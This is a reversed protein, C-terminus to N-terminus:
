MKSGDTLIAFIALGLTILSLKIIIKKNKGISSPWRLAQILFGITFGAPSAILGGYWVNHFLDETVSLKWGVVAGIFQAILICLAIPAIPKFEKWLLRDISNM